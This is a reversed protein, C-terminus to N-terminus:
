FSREEVFEEPEDARDRAWTEVGGCPGLHVPGDCRGGAERCTPEVTANVTFDRAGTYLDVPQVTQVMVHGDQVERLVGRLEDLSLWTDITVEAGDSDLACAVTIASARPARKFRRSLAEIAKFADPWLEALLRYRTSKRAAENARVNKM